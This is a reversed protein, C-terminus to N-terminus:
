NGNKRRRAAVVVDILITVFWNLIVSLPFCVFYFSVQEPSTEEPSNADLAMKVLFEDSEGYDDYEMKHDVSPYMAYQGAGMHAIQSASLDLNMYILQQLGFLMEFLFYFYVVFLM